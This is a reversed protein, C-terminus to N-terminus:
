KILIGNKLIIKPQEFNESNDFPNKSWILLNAKKGIDISGIENELQMAKAGNITAIKFIDAITFGYKALIVLESLLVKGGNPMDTAIRLEVGKNHLEKAFNMMLKFNTLNRELQIKSVSTDTNRLQDYVRYITTSLTAKNNAMLKIFEAKEKQKNNEIYRFQELFYQIIKPETNLAGFQNEFSNTFDDREKQTTFFNNGLVTIHEINKLSNNLAYSISPYELSLDGIHGFIPMKLSDAVKVVNSFEPEKIRYYVKVYKVGKNHYEMIKQRALQPSTVEVHGIYPLRNDKSIMAGGSLYYDVISDNPNIQWQIMSNLWNDPQGMTLVTTVGFPLYSDSIRKRYIALSDTNINKPAKDYDGLIDTPHIHTDIFSPTVLKNNGDLNEKAKFSQDANIIQNIKGNDILITKNSQIKGTLVNLVKVNKIAFEHVKDPKCGFLLLVFSLTIFPRHM